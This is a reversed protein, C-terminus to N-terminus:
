DNWVAQFQLTPVTANLQADANSGPDLAGTSEGNGSAFMYFQVFFGYNNNLNVPVFLPLLSPNTNFGDLDYPSSGEFTNVPPIINLPPTNLTSQYNWNTDYIMCILNVTITLDAYDTLPFFPDFTATWYPNCYINPSASFWLAAEITEVNPCPDSPTFYEGVYAWCSASGGSQLNGNLGEGASINMSFGDTGNYEGGGAADNTASASPSPDIWGVFPADASPVDILHISGNRFVRKKLRPIEPAAWSQSLKKARHPDPKPPTPLEHLLENKELLKLLAKRYPERQKRARQVAEVHKDFQAVHQKHLIARHAAQVEPTPMNRRFDEYVLRTRAQVTPM